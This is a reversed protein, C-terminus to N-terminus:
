HANVHVANDLSTDAIQNIFLTISSPLKTSWQRLYHHLLTVTALIRQSPTLHHHPSRCHKSGGDATHSAGECSWLLLYEGGVTFQCKAKGSQFRCRIRAFHLSMFFYSSVLPAPSLLGM